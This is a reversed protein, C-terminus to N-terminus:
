RAPGYRAALYDLLADRRDAPVTAGWRVMKDVSRSWGARTLRQQEVLDTAHCNLCSAKFAAAGAEDAAPTAAARQPAFHRALYAVLPEREAADVRAGWRVMKDVSRGWGAATLRQQAILDAEHCSLCRAAAIERGPADPLAPAQASLAPATIAAAALALAARLAPRRRAVSRM